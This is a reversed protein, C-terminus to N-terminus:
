ALRRYSRHSLHQVMWELACQVASERIAARDGSFHHTQSIVGQQHALGFCVTGVPKDSTGGGPGAIGTISLAVDSQFKQLAGVAMAQATEESVAGFQAVTAADVGILQTKAANSYVVASGLFWASSGPLDTMAAAVKGGTCSEALSLRVQKKLCLTALQECLTQISIM